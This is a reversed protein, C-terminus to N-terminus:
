EDLFRAAFRAWATELGHREALAHVEHPTVAGSELLALVRAADKARGASLAIVALHAPDVVRFPVGEYDTTQAREIAERTLDDFVPIFQAPWEGVRIAEGEPVHGRQACFEYVPALLDLRDPEPLSILVDADFTAVPETYRMQATAGFLAYESIVGANRMANLLEALERV